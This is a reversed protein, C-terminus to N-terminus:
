FLMRFYVCFLYFWKFNFLFIFIKFYYFFLSHHCGLYKALARKIMKKLLNILVQGLLIHTHTHTHTIITKELCVRFVSKFGIGKKGIYGANSGKKTSNGVDCLARINQASFGQENNLVIIGSDQLIFTLTPEVNELYINDDANQVQLLIFLLYIRKNFFFAELFGIKNKIVKIFNIKLILGFFIRYLQPQLGYWSTCYLLFPVSSM